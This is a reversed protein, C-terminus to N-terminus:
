KQDEPCVVEAMLTDGVIVVAYVNEIEPHELVITVVVTVTFGNGVGVTEAEEDSM